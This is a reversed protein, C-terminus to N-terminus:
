QRDTKCYIEICQSVYDSTGAGGAADINRTFEGGSCYMKGLGSLIEDTCHYFHASIFDQLKKAQAQPVEGAPDQDKMQGFEAFIQMMQGAIDQEQVPPISKAEYEQWAETNGWAAKAQARYEDLKKTDFASFDMQYDGKRKISRALDILKQMREKKLELLDIQQELAKNRDFGPCEMMDRIDKLPFELDRFLLIQQLRELDSDAYLRYGADTRMSPHLLGIRDYYQLTRISIGSMESVEHVTKM